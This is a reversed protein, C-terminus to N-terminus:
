YKTFSPYGNSIREYGEILAQQYNELKLLKQALTKGNQEAVM